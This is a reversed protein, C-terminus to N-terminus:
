KEMVFISRYYLGDIDDKQEYYYFNFCNDNFSSTNIPLSTNLTQELNYNNILELYFSPPESNNIEKRIYNSNLLTVDTETESESLPIDLFITYKSKDILDFYMKYIDFAADFWVERKKFSRIIQDLHFHDMREWSQTDIAEQYWDMLFKIIKKKNRHQGNM